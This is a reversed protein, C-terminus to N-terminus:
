LTILGRSFAYVAAIAIAVIAGALVKEGRTFLPANEPTDHRAWIYFPIGVAIFVVAMLLYELGAAYLLWIAYM